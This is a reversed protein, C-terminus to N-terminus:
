DCQEQALRGCETLRYNAYVRESNVSLQEAQILLLPLFKMVLDKSYFAGSTISRPVSQVGLELLMAVLLSM